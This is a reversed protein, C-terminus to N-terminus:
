FFQNPSKLHSGAAVEADVNNKKAYDKSDDRIDVLLCSTEMKRKIKASEFGFPEELRKLNM